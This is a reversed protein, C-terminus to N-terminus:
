CLKNELIIIHWNKDSTSFILRQHQSEFKHNDSVYAEVKRVLKRLHIHKM